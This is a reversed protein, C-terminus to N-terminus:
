VAAADTEQYFGSANITIALTGSTTSVSGGNELECAAVLFDGAALVGNGDGDRVIALHDATITSGPWSLDAADWTTVLGSRSLTITMLEGNATYGTGSIETASLDSFTDHVTQSPTYGNLLVGRFADTDLDIVGQLLQDRFSPFLFFPNAPM